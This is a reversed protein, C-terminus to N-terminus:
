LYEAASMPHLLIHVRHAMAGLNGLSMGKVNNICYLSILVICAIGGYKNQREYYYGKDNIM